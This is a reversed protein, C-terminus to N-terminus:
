LKSGFWIMAAHNCDMFVHNITEEKQLCRPCLISCLTGRRSLESRVPLAKNIIRWIIVKHRPITQLNWLKKWVQSYPNPNASSPNDSEQWHRLLNYGSKVSYLGDKTHPWMLQDEIPEQILPLQKILEGPNTQLRWVQKALMAMNFMHMDRFGLGGNVKPQLLEKRAKWHIHSLLKPLLM